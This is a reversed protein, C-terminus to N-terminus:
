MLRAAGDTNKVRREGIEHLVHAGNEGLRTADTESRYLYPRGQSHEHDVGAGGAIYVDVRGHKFRVAPVTWPLPTQRHWAAVERRQTGTENM